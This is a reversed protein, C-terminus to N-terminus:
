NYRWIENTYTRSLHWKVAKCVTSAYMLLTAYVVYCLINVSLFKFAAAQM